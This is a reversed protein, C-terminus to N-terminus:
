LKTAGGPPPLAIWTRGPTLLIPKGDVDTYTTVAGLATKRWHGQVLGPKVLGGGTLIWCDGEGVTQAEPIFHGFQDTVDTPAYQVLHPNFRSNLFSQAVRRRRQISLLRTTKRTRWTAVTSSVLWLQNQLLQWMM